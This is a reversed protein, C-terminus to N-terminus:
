RGMYHQIQAVCAALDKKIDSEWFRLVIWGQETLAETVERDRKINGEIKAQWFASNTKVHKSRYTPNGHWFDGDVFIAIHWRTLVMDPRGILHNWNKRYRIGHVWLAKRLAIEPKTDTGKIRAMNDHRQQKTKNDM